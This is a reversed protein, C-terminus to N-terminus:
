EKFFKHNEIFKANEYETIKIYKMFEHETKHGTIKMISLVPVKALYANTAFSRRATHTTILEYKKYIKTNQRSGIKHTISIETNIGTAKGIEKLYKNLRQNTIPKPLQNGNREIIKKINKHYPIVVKTGTKQQILSIYDKQLNQPQLNSFDSFRQGTYCGLLFLDRANELYNPLNKARFIKDIESSSLYINPVKERLIKFNQYAKNEHLGAEDAYKMFAKINKIHNGIYNTSYNNRQMYQIYKEYFQKTIDAFSLKKNFRLLHNKLTNIQKVSNTGRRNTEKEIYLELQEFFNIKLQEKKSFLHAKLLDKTIAENKYKREKIYLNAKAEIENLYNNLLKNETYEKQMARLNARMKKNNWMKPDITASISLKIRKNYVYAVLFILSKPANADKLKFKIMEKQNYEHLSVFLPKFLPTKKKSKKFIKNKTTHM